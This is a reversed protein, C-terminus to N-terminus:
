VRRLAGVVRDFAARGLVTGERRIGGPDVRIVRDVKVESPRGQRDWPGSGIDVYDADFHRADSHNRSTLMLALLLDGDHGVLLVPRDKGQTHDEEYPVWTWVIEGPDPSGDPEPAYVAEVRATFDGPYPRIRWGDGTGGAPAAGPRARGNGGRVQTEQGSRFARFAKIGLRVWRNITRPNIQM